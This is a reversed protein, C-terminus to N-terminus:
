KYIGVKISIINCSFNYMLGYMKDLKVIKKDFCFTFLLNLDLIKVAIGNGSM